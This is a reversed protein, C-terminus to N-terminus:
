ADRWDLILKLCDPDDFATPYARVADATPASHTILGALSLRGEAVMANVAVLDAPAWEAAVRLRAERMFAAPYAFSVPRAYFGALTIEGQPALRAILTDILGPDGSADLIAGYDHRDDEASALVDYGVAGDRRGEATEWVTPAGGLAVTLRALLRGLAGHGVILEPLRAPDLAHYATAALAMLTADSGLAPDVLVTRDSSVALRSAAGGFLGRVEGYCAAGPVFVTDGKAFGTGPPASVVEGVTEYGPVLPYGLGPFAPMQGTWLLKETGSSVGSWLSRVVLQSPECQIPLRRLAVRGPEDLIVAMADM